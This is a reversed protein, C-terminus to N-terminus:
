LVCSLNNKTKRKMEALTARKGMEYGYVFAYMIGQLSEGKCMENLEVAQSTELDYLPNIKRNDIIRKVNRRMKNGKWESMINQFAQALTPYAPRLNNIINLKEEQTASEFLHLLEMTQNVRHLMAPDHNLMAEIEKPTKNEFM